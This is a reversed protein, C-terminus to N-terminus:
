LLCGLPWAFAQAADTHTQPSPALTLCARSGSRLTPSPLRNFGTSSLIHPTHPTPQPSALIDVFSHNAHAHQAPHQATHCTLGLIPLACPSNAALCARGCCHNKIHCLLNQQHPRNSVSVLAFQVPKYTMHCISIIGHVSQYILLSGPKCHDNTCESGHFATHWRVRSLSPHPQLSVLFSLPSGMIM